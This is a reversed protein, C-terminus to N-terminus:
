KQYLQEEIRVSTNHSPRESGDSLEGIFKVFPRDISVNAIDSETDMASPEKLCKIFVETLLQTIEFVIAKLM